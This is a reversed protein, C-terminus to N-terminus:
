AQDAPIAVEPEVLQGATIGDGSIFIGTGAEGQGNANLENRRNRERQPETAAAAMEYPSSPQHIVNMEHDNPAGPATPAAPVSPTAHGAQRADRFWITDVCMFVTAVGGIVGVAGVLYIWWQAEGQTAQIYTGAPMMGTENGSGIGQGTSNHIFISHSIAPM